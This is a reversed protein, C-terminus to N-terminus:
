KSQSISNNADRIINVVDVTASVVRKMDNLTVSDLRSVTPKMETAVHDLKITGMGNGYADEANVISRAIDNAAAGFEPKVIGAIIPTLKLILNMWVQRKSQAM